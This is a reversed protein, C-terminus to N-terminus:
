PMASRPAISIVWTIGDAKTVKVFKRDEVAM